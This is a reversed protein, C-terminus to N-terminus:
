LVEPPPPGDKPMYLIPKGLAQALVCEANIGVSESWGDMEVVIVGRSARIMADDLQAWQEFHGALQGVLAIAHTHPIPAFVQVGAKFCIAAAACAEYHAVDIGRPHKTYPTALYWFGKVM